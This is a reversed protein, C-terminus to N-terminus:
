GDNRFQACPDPREAAETVLTLDYVPGTPAATEFQGVSLVVVEPAAIALLAPMGWDPHVHGTGVIVAIPGGHEALAELATRAFAADRYRQAAVMAPLYEEPLADCHVALQRAERTTQEEPPLPQDLGFRIADQGFADALPTEFVRRLDERPVAMGYVQAPGIAEFVPAYLSFDPWGSDDWQLLRRLDSIGGIHSNAQAAQEASLMEFVVAPPRLHQLIQAQNEHHWPNDHVEGLLVIDAEPLDKLQEPAIEAVAFRSFGFILLFLAAWLAVRYQSCMSVRTM